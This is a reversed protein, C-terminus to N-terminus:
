AELRLRARRDSEDAAATAFKEVDEDSFASLLPALATALAAEDIDVADPAPRGTLGLLMGFISNPAGITADVGPGGAYAYAALNQAILLINADMAAITNINALVTMDTPQNLGGQAGLVDRIQFLATREDAQMDDEPSLGGGAVQGGTLAHFDVTGASGFTYGRGKFATVHVHPGGTRAIMAPDTDSAAGFHESGYGSAGSLGFVTGAPLDQGVHVRQELLHLYRIWRVGNDVTVFRGTAPQIGGGVAVVRCDSPVVLPTGRPMYYDTGPEASPPVRRQHSSWSSLGTYRAPIVYGPGGGM